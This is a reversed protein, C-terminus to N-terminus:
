VENHGSPRADGGEDHDPFLSCVLFAQRGNCRLWQALPAFADSIFSDACEAHTGSNDWDLYKHIEFVLDTFSGDPNKIKALADASGDIIFTGASTWDNGPLLIM